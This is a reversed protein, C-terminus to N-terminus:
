GTHLFHLFWWSKRGILDVVELGIGLGDVKEKFLLRNSHFDCKLVTHVEGCLQDHEHAVAAVLDELFSDCQGQELEGLAM